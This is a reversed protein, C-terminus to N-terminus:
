LSPEALRILLPAISVLPLTSDIEVHQLAHQPMSSCLAEAPDQVITIGGQQKIALLGATGDSGAGTLIIGIVRSGYSTAASHFLVNIAPRVFHEKPGTDLHMQGPKLLLHSGPPAVFIKGPEIRMGEAAHLAPLPGSRSLLNPLMSPYTASVHMVIFLSARLDDPLGAVLTM